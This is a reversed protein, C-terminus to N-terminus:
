ALQRCPKACPSPHALGVRVAAEDGVPVRSRVAREAGLLLRASAVAEPTIGAAHRPEDRCATITAALAARSGARADRGRRRRGELARFARMEVAIAKAIQAGCGPQQKPSVASTGIPVDASLPASETDGLAHSRDSALHVCPKAGTAIVHEREVLDSSATSPSPPGARVVARPLDGKVAPRAERPELAQRGQAVTLNWVVWKKRTTCAASREGAV